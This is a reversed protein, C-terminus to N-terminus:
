NTVDLNTLIEKFLFKSDISYMFGHITRFINV